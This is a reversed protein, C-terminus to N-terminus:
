AFSRMSIGRATSIRASCADHRDQRAEADHQRRIRPRHGPRARVLIEEAVTGRQQEVDRVEVGLIQRAQARLAHRDLLEHQRVRMGVVDAARERHALRKAHRDGHM